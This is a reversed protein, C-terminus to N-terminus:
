FFKWLTMSQNAQNDKKDTATISITQRGFCPYDWRWFCPSQDTSVKKGGNVSLTVEKVGSEMDIVNVMVDISGFIVCSSIQMFQQGQLYLGQQPTIIEITPPTIDNSEVSLLRTMTTSHNAADLVQLTLTYAGPQDYVHIPNSENSSSGDGFDWQFSYPPIGGSVQSVFYIDKDTLILDPYSIAVDLPANSVKVNVYRCASNLGTDDVAVVTIKHTGDPVSTTDWEYEWNDTGEAEMWEGDDIKVYVHKVFGDLDDTSGTITITDSVYCNQIPYKVFLRPPIGIDPDDEDDQGGQITLETDGVFVVCDAISPYEICAMDFAEKIPYGADMVYFMYDQWPLSVSWGPCSGMGSYGITVTDDMSGKRFEYSFTGAGTDTMGECSGIFSFTMKERNQMADEVDSAYYYSGPSDAQFYTSAGHALEYFLDYDSDSIFSSIVSPTPLSVSNTEDCWKSYWTDANQRWQIWCDPSSDQCYGSLSFGNRNTPTPIGNGIHQGTLNILQTEGNNLRIEWCILPFTVPRNLTYFFGLDHPEPFLVPKYWSLMTKDVPYEDLHHSHFSIIQGLDTTWQKEYELIEGTSIDQKLQIYDNKVQVSDIEHIWYRIRTNEIFQDSVLMLHDLQNIEDTIQHKQDTEGTVFLFNSSLLVFLIFVSCWKVYNNKIHIM